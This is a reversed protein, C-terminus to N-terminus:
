EIVTTSYVEYLFNCNELIVDDGGEREFNVPFRFYLRISVIRLSRTRVSYNLFSIEM